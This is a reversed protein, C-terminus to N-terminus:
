TEIQVNVSSFELPTDQLAPPVGGLLEQIFDGLCKVELPLVHRTWAWLWFFFFFNINNIGWNIRCEARGSERRGTM